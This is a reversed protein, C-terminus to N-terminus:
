AAVLPLDVEICVGGLRSPRAAIQGAHAEVINKCIALGLGAGGSARSRSGEPRYFREFLRPLVEDPVGPASDLIEIHASADRVGCEVRLTGGADTYRVSNEVINRFLQALRDPDGRVLAGFNGKTDMEVSLRREAIRERFADLALQVVDCVNVEEMRYTLAGADSLALTHLDDVLTSLSAVEGQLSRISEPSPKRLGDELAELEGRLVALPTRLEHSVDAMFARRMQETRQLIQALQNTDDGLRGIEDRPLAPVRVDYDGAALRHVSNTVQKLGGLLRRSLWVAVGAALLTAGAGTIWTMLLQRQQFRLDAGGSVQEFPVVALWGVVDAGVRVPRKAANPGVEPNGAVFKGETDLLGIRLDLSVVSADPLPGAPDDGSPQESPAIPRLLDFWARPQGRLFEWSGHREYADALVPQLTEVRELGAENLYGLFGRTFSIRSAVSMALVALVSVLLLALLLKTALGLKMVPRTPVVAARPERRGYRQFFADGCLAVSTRAGM